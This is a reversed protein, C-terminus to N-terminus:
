PFLFLLFQYALAVIAASVVLILAIDRLRALEEKWGQWQMTRIQERTRWRGRYLFRGDRGMRERVEELSERLIARVRARDGEQSGPM